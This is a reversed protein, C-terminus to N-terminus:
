RPSREEPITEGYHEGKGLDQRTKREQAKREWYTGMNDM